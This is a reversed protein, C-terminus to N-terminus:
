PLMDLFTLISKVIIHFELPGLHIDIFHFILDLFHSLSKLGDLNIVPLATSEKTDALFDFSPADKDGHDSIKLMLGHNGRILSVPGFDLISKFLLKVDIFIEFEIKQPVQSQEVVLLSNFFNTFNGFVFCLHFLLDIRNDFEPFNNLKFKNRQFTGVNRSQFHEILVKFDQFTM